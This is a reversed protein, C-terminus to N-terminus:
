KNNKLFNDIKENIVRLKSVMIKDDSYTDILKEVGKMSELLDNMIIVKNVNNNNMLIFFMSRYVVDNIFKITTERSNRSLFRWISNTLNIDYVNVYSGNIYLKQDSEISSIMKLYSSLISFEEEM